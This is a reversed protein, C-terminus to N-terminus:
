NTLGGHAVWGQRLVARQAAATQMPPTTCSSDMGHWGRISKNRQGPGWSGGLRHLTRHVDRHRSGEEEVERHAFAHAKQAAHYQLWSVTFQQLQETQRCEM